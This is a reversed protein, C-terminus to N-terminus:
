GSKRTFAGRGYEDLEDEEDETRMHPNNPSSELIELQGGKQMDEFLENIEHTLILHITTLITQLPYDM